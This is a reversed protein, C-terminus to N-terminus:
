RYTVISDRGKCCWWCGIPLCAVRTPLILMPLLEEPVYVEGVTGAVAVYAAALIGPPPLVLGSTNVTTIAYLM